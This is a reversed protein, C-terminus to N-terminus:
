DRCWGEGSSVRLCDSKDALWKMGTDAGNSAQITEKIGDREFVIQNSTTAGEYQMAGDLDAITIIYNGDSGTIHLSTGEPGSWTGVWADTKIPVTAAKVFTASSTSSSSVQTTKDGCAVLLLISPVILIRSTLHNM